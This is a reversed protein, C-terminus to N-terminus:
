LGAAELIKDAVGKQTEDLPFERVASANLDRGNYGLSYNLLEYCRPEDERVLYGPAPLLTTVVMHGTGNLNYKQGVSFENRM